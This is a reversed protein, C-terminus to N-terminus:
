WSMAPVTVARGGVVGGLRHLMSLKVQPISSDSTGHGHSEDSLWRGTRVDFADWTCVPTERLKGGFVYIKDDLVSSSFGRREHKFSTVHTWCGRMDDLVAITQEVLRGRDDRDGAVAYLRGCVVFLRLRFRREAFAPGDKWEGLDPNYMEVSCNGECNESAGIGGAVWICGKYTVAAHSSRAYRMRAPLLLWSDNSSDLEYMRDSYEYTAWDYGGMVLLREYLVTGVVAALKGPLPTFLRWTDHM